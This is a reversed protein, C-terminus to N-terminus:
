LMLPRGPAYFNLNIIDYRYDSQFWLDTREDSWAPYWMNQLANMGVGIFMTM